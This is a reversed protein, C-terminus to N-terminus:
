TLYNWCVDLNKQQKIIILDIVIYYAVTITEKQRCVTTRFIDDSCNKNSEISSILCYLFNPFIDM